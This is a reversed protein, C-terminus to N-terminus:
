EPESPLEGNLEVSDADKWCSLYRGRRMKLMKGGLTWSQRSPNMNAIMACTAVITNIIEINFLRSYRELFIERGTIGAIYRGKTVTASVVLLRSPTEFICTFDQTPLFVFM